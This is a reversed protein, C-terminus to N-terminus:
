HCSLIIDTNLEQIRSDSLETLKLEKVLKNYFQIM